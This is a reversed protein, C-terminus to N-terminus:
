FSLLSPIVFSVQYPQQERHVSLLYRCGYLFQKEAVINASKLLLLRIPRRKVEVCVRLHWYGGITVKKEVLCLLSWEKFDNPM